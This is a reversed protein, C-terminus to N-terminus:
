HEHIGGPAGFVAGWPGYLANFQDDTILGRTILGITAAGVACLGAVQEAPELQGVFEKIRERAVRDTIEAARQVIEILDAERAADQAASIAQDILDFKDRSVHQDVPGLMHEDMTRLHGPMLAIIQGVLRSLPAQLVVYEPGM